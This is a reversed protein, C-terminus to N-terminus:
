WNVPLKVEEPSKILSYTLCMNEKTQNFFAATHYEFALSNEKQRIELHSYKKRLPLGTM